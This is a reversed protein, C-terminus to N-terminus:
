EPALWGLIKDANSFEVVWGYPGPERLDTHFILTESEPPPNVDGETYRALAVCALHRTRFLAREAADNTFM